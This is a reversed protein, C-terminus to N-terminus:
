SSLLAGSHRTILFLIFLTDVGIRSCSARGLFAVDWSVSSHSVTSRLLCIPRTFAILDLDSWILVPRLGRTRGLKVALSGNERCSAGCNKENALKDADIGQQETREKRVSPDLM